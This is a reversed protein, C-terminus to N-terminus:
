LSRVFSILARRQPADLAAFRERSESAEGGHWVIAEEVTRARGDHLLGVSELMARALGVGWLPATRWEAGSARHDERGDDLAPGMDHLLLDSYPWITQHSLHPYDPDDGTGFRPTHCDACGVLEFLAAGERVTPHEPARREVVAISMTFFVLADLLEESIEHGSADEGTPAAQCRPQGETCPQDPFVSSTVGLDGALAAAVQVRASPQNAKLGFRGPRLAEAEPDWVINVRGSIGDADRDDPDARREIDEQPILELLGVGAMSPAHRLGARTEPQMDGYGLRRLELAPARLEVRAGDPYTFTQSTWRLHVAAEAPGHDDYRAAGPRDRLQHSLSTSRTQLQAGYVPEPRPEGHAGRGPVSLRVLTAVPPREVSTTSEGRGGKIHCELCSRANYLPGLGDRADTLTPARVWPQTALAKGAYFRARQEATLNAAPQTM